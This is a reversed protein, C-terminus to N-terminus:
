PSGGDEPEAPALWDVAAGIRRAEEYARAMHAQEQQQQRLRQADPATRRLLEQFRAQAQSRTNDSIRGPATPRPAPSGPTSPPASAQGTGGAPGGSPAAQSILVPRLAVFPRLTVFPRPPSPPGPPFPPRPPPPQTPVAPTNNRRILRGADGWAHLDQRVANGWVQVQQRADQSYRSGGARAARVTAPLGVTTGYAARGGRHLLRYGRFRVLRNHARTSLLTRDTNQDDLTQGSNPDLVQGDENRYRDPPGGPRLPGGSGSGGPGDGGPGGGSAGGTHPDGDATPKRWKLLKDRDPRRGILLWHAGRAGLRTGLGGVAAAATLPALGRGAEATADALLGGPDVPMGAGDVLSTLAGMLRQDPASCGSGAEAEPYDAATAGALPRASHQRTGARHGAHLGGRPAPQHPRSPPPSRQPSPSRRRSLSAVSCRAPLPTAPPGAAIRGGRPQWGLLVWGLAAQMPARGNIKARRVAWIALVWAVVPVPGMWSWSSITKVLLFGGGVAVAIQAPTYPGLPIKWDAVKGLVWPHRRASTYFRGVRGAAAASM